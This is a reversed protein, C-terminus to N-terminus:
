IVRPYVMLQHLIECGDVANLLTKCINLKGQKKSKAKSHFGMEKTSADGPTAWSGAASPDYRSTWIRPYPDFFLKSM